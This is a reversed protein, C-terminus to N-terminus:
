NHHETDSAAFLLTVRRKKVLGLLQAVTEDRSDLEDFYRRKFEDWKVPDHGFWKRLETSPAIEKLWADVRAKEKSLGRPWIRDVLVRAGGAKTPPDYVRKLSVAHKTKM